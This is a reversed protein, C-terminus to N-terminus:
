RGPLIPQEVAERFRAVDEGGRSRRIPAAWQSQRPRPGTGHLPRAASEAQDLSLVPQYDLQFEQRLFFDEA